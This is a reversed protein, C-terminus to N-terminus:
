LISFRDSSGSSVMRESKDNTKVTSHPSLTHKDSSMSVPVEGGRSLCAPYLLM